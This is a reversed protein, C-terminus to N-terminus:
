SATVPVYFEQLVQTSILGSENEWLGELRERAMM